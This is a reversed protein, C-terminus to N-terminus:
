ALKRMGEKSEEVSREYFWEPISKSRKTMRIKPKPKEKEKTENISVVPFYLRGEYWCDKHEKYNPIQVTPSDYNEWNAVPRWLKRATCSCFMNSRENRYRFGGRTLYAVIITKKGDIKAVYRGRDKVDSQKM